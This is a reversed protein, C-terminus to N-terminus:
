RECRFTVFLPAAREAALKKAAALDSLWTTDTTQAPTSPAPTSPAPTSQPPKSQGPAAALLFPLVVLSLRSM